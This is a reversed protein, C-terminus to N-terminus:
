RTRVRTRTGDLTRGSGGAGTTPPDGKFDTAGLEKARRFIDGVADEKGKGKGKDKGKDKDKGKQPVDAALPAKPPARRAAHQRCAHM